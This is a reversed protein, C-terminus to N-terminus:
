TIGDLFLMSYVTLLTQSLSILVSETKKSTLKMDRKQSWSSNCASRYVTIQFRIACLLLFLPSSLLMKLPFKKENGGLPRQRSLNYLSALFEVGGQPMDSYNYITTSTSGDLCICHTGDRLFLCM